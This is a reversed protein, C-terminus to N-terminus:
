SEERWRLEWLKVPDEFGRLETEGLDSFLFQKGAALERVVNSAVIQGPEAHDCIRAALDVSTGFLDQEEAIPEGANLGVYVGLPSDPHEELHAAVGRQIAISCELASRASAFSAMIGDGTHKIERGDHEGLAGRVIENHARRVVQAGEDGLQQTLATSSEMDTFLITVLGTATQSEVSAGIDLFRRLEQVIIDQEKWPAASSKGFPVFKAHPLRAALRRGLDFRVANDHQGHMVLTPVTISPALDEVDVAFMARIVQGQVEPSAGQKQIRSVDQFSKLDEPSLDTIDLTTPFGYASILGIMTRAREPTALESGRLYGSSLILKSVREPHAAAYTIAIPGALLGLSMLSFQELKLHDVVATLDEVWHELSLDPVDTDSLGSGRMDYRILTVGQALKELFQRAVPTEWEVSLHGPWGTAYVLPPGDGITAYAISVGDSTTCFGLQQEM